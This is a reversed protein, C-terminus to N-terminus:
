PISKTRKPSQSYFLFVGLLLNGSADEISQTVNGCDHTYNCRPYLHSAQSGPEILPLQWTMLTFLRVYQGEPARTKLHTRCFFSIISFFLLIKKFEEHKKQVWRWRSSTDGTTEHQQHTRIHWHLHPLVPILSTKRVASPETLLAHRTVSPCIRPLNSYQPISQHSRRHM